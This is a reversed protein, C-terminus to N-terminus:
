QALSQAAQSGAVAGVAAGGQRLAAKTKTLEKTALERFSVLKGAGKQTMYDSIINKAKAIAVAGSVAAAAHGVVPIFSLPLTLAAAAALGGKDNANRERKVLANMMRKAAPDNGALADFAARAQNAEAGGKAITSVIDPGGAQLANRYRTDATKLHQILDDAQKQPLLTRAMKEQQGRVTDGMALDRMAKARVPDPSAGGLAAREHELLESRADAANAWREGMNAAPKQLMFEAQAAEKMYAAPVTGKGSPGTLISSVPGDPIPKFPANAAPSRPVAGTAAGAAGVDNKINELQQGAQRAEIAGPRQTLAEGRTAKNKVQNYAYAAHDPDIGDNKVTEKAKTYKTNEVTTGDALMTKPQEEALVKAAAQVEAKAAGSFRSYIQHGVMGLAQGFAEGGAAGLAGGAAANAIEATSGGKLAAEGGGVAGGALVRAATPLVGAGPFAAIAGQAAGFGGAKLYGTPTQDEESGTLYNQLAGGAAGGAMGGAVGGVPGGALTGGVAGVTGGVAPALAAAPRIAAASAEQPTARGQPGSGQVGQTFMQNVRSLFSPKQDPEGAQTNVQVTQGGGTRYFQAFKAKSEAVTLPKGDKDWFFAANNAAAQRTVQDKALANDPAKALAIGGDVGQQHAMALNLPTPEVDASKLATANKATFRAFAMDQQQPTAKYAQDPAGDPKNANWTSPIFQYAGSAGAKNPPAGYNNGSEGTKIGAAYTAVPSAPPPAAAKTAAPPPTVPISNLTKAYSGAPVYGPTNPPVVSDIPLVTRVGNKVISPYKDIDLRGKVLAEQHIPALLDQTEKDLGVSGLSGGYRGLTAIPGELRGLEAKTEALKFDAIAKFGAISQQTMRPELKVEEGKKGSQLWAKYAAWNNTTANLANDITGYKSELIKVLGISGAAKSGEAVDRGIAGLADALFAVGHPYNYLNNGTNDSHAAAHFSKAMKYQDIAGQEQKSEFQKRVTDTVAPTMDSYGNPGASGRNNLDGSSPQMQAGQIGGLAPFTVANTNPFAEGNSFQKTKTVPGAVKEDDIPVAQGLQAQQQNFRAVLVKASNLTGTIQGRRNDYDEKTKPLRDDSIGYAKYDGGQKLVDKRLSQYQANNGATDLKDYLKSAGQVQKGMANIGESMYMDARPDGAGKLARYADFNGDNKWEKVAEERIAAADATAPMTKTLGMNQAAQANTSQTQKEQQKAQIQADLATAKELYSNAKDREWFQTHPNSGWRQYQDRQATLNNIQADLPNADSASTVPIANSGFLGKGIGPQQPPATPATPATPAPPASAALDVPQQPALDVSDLAAPEKPAFSLSRSPDLTSGPNLDVGSDGGVLSDPDM